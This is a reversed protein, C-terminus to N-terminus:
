IGFVDTTRGFLRAWEAPTWELAQDRAEREAGAAMAAQAFARCEADFVHPGMAAIEHLVTTGWRTREVPPGTRELTLRFCELYGDRPWELHCWPGVWHNWFFLPAGLLGHWRRDGRPWQVRELALRFIAADGGKAAAGLLQEAVPGSSFGDDPLPADGHEELLRVALDMRRYLGAMSANPRGGFAILLEIMREDRQGYAESLPTGGAYVQGNPDAGRELLMRAMAHEGRRVCAYLPMGWSWEGGGVDARADPDWGRELLMALLDARRCEVAAGLVWGQDDGPAGPEMARLFAADGERVARLAEPEPGPEPVAVAGRLLAFIGEFGRWEALALASTKRWYPGVGALPDAGAALLTRVHEEDGALVARQLEGPNM